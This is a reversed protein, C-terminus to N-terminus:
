GLSFVTQIPDESVPSQLVIHVWLRNYLAVPFGLFLYNLMQWGASTPVPASDIWVFPVAKLSAAVCKGCGPSTM